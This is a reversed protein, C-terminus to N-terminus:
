MHSIGVSELDKIHLRAANCDPKVEVSKLFCEIVKDPYCQEKYGCGLINWCMERRSTDQKNLLTNMLSIDVAGHPAMNLKM